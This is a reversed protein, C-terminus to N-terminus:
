NLQWYLGIGGSATSGFQPLFSQKENEFAKNYALVTKYYSGKKKYEFWLSAVSLIIGTALVTRNFSGTTAWMAGEFGLLVGGVTATTIELGYYLIGRRLHKYAEPNREKTLAKLAGKSVKENNLYFTFGFKKQKLTLPKLSQALLTETAVFLIFFLVIKLKM